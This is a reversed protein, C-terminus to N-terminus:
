RYEIQFLSIYIFVKPWPIPESLMRNKPLTKDEPYDNMPYRITGKFPM